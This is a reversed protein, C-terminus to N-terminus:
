KRPRVNKYKSNGPALSILCQFGLFLNSPPPLVTEERPPLKDLFRHLQHSTGKLHQCPPETQRSVAAFASWWKDGKDRDVNANKPFAGVGSRLSSRSDVVPMNARLRQWKGHRAVARDRDAAASRIIRAAPRSIASHLPLRFPTTQIPGGSFLQASRPPAHSTLRCHESRRRSTM